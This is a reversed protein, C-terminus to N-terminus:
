KGVDLFITKVLRDQPVSEISHLPPDTYKEACLYCFDIKKTNTKNNSPHDKLKLNAKM